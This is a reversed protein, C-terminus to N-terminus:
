GSAMDFDGVRQVEPELSIGFRESVLGSVREILLHVDTATAGPRAVIFNAHKESVVANGVAMRKAGAAEVLRAAHDGPPNKFVSGCNPEALPQTARRWSRAAEMERRIDEPEGPHLSVTAGVVISGEPLASRRYSFGADGAAMTSRVAGTISYLEAVHLVESIAHDHAGANMRVAGGLSAPIAVGFELGSLSHALAVGSLAPLPMSGGARLLSGDRAAWRYGKGLRLVLGPFGRDSVLVNSGKGLVVWPIGAAAVAEAAAALDSDNDAELYLSAPGGLRFSTLLALPFAVRLRAGAAARLIHEAAALGAPLDTSEGDNRDTAHLPTNSM